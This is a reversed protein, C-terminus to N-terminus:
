HNAPEQVANLLTTRDYYERWHSIKSGSFEIIGTTPVIRSIGDLVIEDEREVFLVGNAVGITRINLKVSKNPKETKRVREFFNERGICPTLMVSHLIGDEAMLDACARWDKKEWGDKMAMFVSIKMEDSIQPETM